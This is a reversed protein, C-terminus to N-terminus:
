PSIICPFYTVGGASVTVTDTAATSVNGALDKCWSRLTKEGATTTYTAPASSTWGGASPLPAEASETILYGTPSGTCTFSSVTVQLGSTEPVTFASVAPATTDIVIAKLASMVNAAEPTFDTMSNESLDEITGSVTCNLDASTDGAQVTYNCTGTNTATMTFTCQRDTDGTECTVTVNGTSTVSEDATVDIPIVEGVTYSGNTKSSTIRYITPATEDDGPVFDTPGIMKNGDADRNAPTENTIILDDLYDIQTAPVNGNWYSWVYVIQATDTANDLTANTTDNHILIGNKWIRFIGQGDTAHLKVYMEYCTWAGQTFATTSNTQIGDPENSLMIMGDDHHAFVSLWGEGGGGTNYTGIRMVKVVPNAEWNWTPVMYDYWRIWIEGDQAVSPIGIIGTAENWDDQGVPHIFKASKSGSHAMTTSFTTTTGAGDFGTAGECAAENTGDEFTYTETFAGCWLPILIFIIALLKNLM